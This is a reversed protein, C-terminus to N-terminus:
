GYRDLGCLQAKLTPISERMRQQCERLSLLYFYHTRKTPCTEPIADSALFIPM